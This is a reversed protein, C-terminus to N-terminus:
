HVMDKVLKGIKLEIEGITEAVDTRLYSDDLSVEEERRRKNSRRRKRSREVQLFDEEDGAKTQEKDKKTKGKKREEMM